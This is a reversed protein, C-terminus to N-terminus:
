GVTLAPATTLHQAQGDGETCWLYAPTNGHKHYSRGGVGSVQGSNSAYGASNAYNANSTSGANGSINISWTAGFYTGDVQADFQSGAWVIYINNSAGRLNLIQRSNLLQDLGVSSPTLGAVPGTFTG